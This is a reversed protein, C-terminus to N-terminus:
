SPKLETMSTVRYISIRYTIFHFTLLKTFMKFIYLSLNLQADVM